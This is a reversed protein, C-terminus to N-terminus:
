LPGDAVPYLESLLPEYLVGEYGSDAYNIVDLATEDDGMRHYTRDMFQPKVGDSMGLVVGILLSGAFGIVLNKIITKGAKEKSNGNTSILM